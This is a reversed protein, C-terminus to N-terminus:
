LMWTRQHLLLGPIFVICEVATPKAIARPSDKVAIPCVPAGMPFLGLLPVDTSDVDAVLEAVPSRTGAFRGSSGILAHAFTRAASISGHMARCFALRDPVALAPEVVRGVCPAVDPLLEAFLASVAVPFVFYNM